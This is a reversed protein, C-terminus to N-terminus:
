SPVGYKAILDELQAREAVETRASWLRERNEQRHRLAECQEAYAAEADAVYASCRVAEEVVSLESVDVLNTKSYLVKAREATEPSDYVGLFLLCTDYDCEEEEFL